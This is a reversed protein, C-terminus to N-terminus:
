QWQAPIAGTLAAGIHQKGLPGFEEEWTTITPEFTIRLQGGRPTDTRDVAQARAVAPLLLAILAVHRCVDRFPPLPSAYGM